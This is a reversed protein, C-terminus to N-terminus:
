GKFADQTLPDGPISPVTYGLAHIRMELRQLRAICEVREQVFAIYFAQRRTELGKVEIELKSAKENQRDLMERFEKVESRSDRLEQEATRTKAKM